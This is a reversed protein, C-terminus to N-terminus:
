LKPGHEQASSPPTVRGGAISPRITTAGAFPITLGHEYAATPFSSHTATHARVVIQDAYWAAPVEDVSSPAAAQVAGASLLLGAVLTKVIQLKSM